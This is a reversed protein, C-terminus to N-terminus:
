LLQNPPVKNRKWPWSGKRLGREKEPPQLVSTLPFGNTVVLAHFCPNKEFKISCPKNGIDVIRSTFADFYLVPITGYAMPGDCAVQAEFRQLLPQRAEQWTLKGVLVHKVSGPEYGHKGHVLQLLGTWYQVLRNRAQLGLHM